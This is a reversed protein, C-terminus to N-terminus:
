KRKTHNKKNLPYPQPKAQSQINAKTVNGVEDWDIRAYVKGHCRYVEWEKKGSEYWGTGTSHDCDKRGMTEYKKSGDENWHTYLGYRKGKLWMEETWKTGDEYWWTEAGHIEGDVYSTKSFVEGNDYYKVAIQTTNNIKIVETDM